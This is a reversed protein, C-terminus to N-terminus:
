GFSWQRKMTLPQSKEWLRSLNDDDRHETLLAASEGAASYSRPIKRNNEQVVRLTFLGIVPRGKDDHADGSSLRKKRFDHARLRVILAHAEVGFL